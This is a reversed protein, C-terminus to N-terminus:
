GYANRRGSWAPRSSRPASRRMAVRLPSSSTAWPSRSSSTHRDGMAVTLSAVGTARPSRSPSTHRYGMTVALSAVGTAVIAHETAAPPSDVTARHRM